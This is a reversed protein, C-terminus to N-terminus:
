ELPNPEWSNSEVPSSGEPLKVYSNFIAMQLSSEGTFNAIEMTMFMNPLPLGSLTLTKYHNPKRGQGSNDM